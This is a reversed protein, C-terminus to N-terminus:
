FISVETEYHNVKSLRSRQTQSMNMPMTAPQVSPSEWIWLALGLLILTFIATPLYTSLYIKRVSHTDAQHEPNHIEALCERELLGWDGGCTSWLNLLSDTTYIQNLLRPSPKMISLTASQIQTSVISLQKIQICHLLCFAISQRQVLENSILCSSVLMM